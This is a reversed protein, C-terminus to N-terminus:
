QNKSPKNVKLKARPAPKAKILGSLLKDFKAKEVKVNEAAM